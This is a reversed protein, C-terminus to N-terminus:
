LVARNLSSVQTLVNCAAFVRTNLLNASDSVLPKCASQIACLYACYIVSGALRTILM